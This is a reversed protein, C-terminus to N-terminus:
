RCEWPTRWSHRSSTGASPRAAWAWSSSKGIGDQPHTGQLERALQEADRYQQPSREIAEIMRSPDLQGYLGVDDLDYRSEM